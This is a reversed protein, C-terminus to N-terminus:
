KEKPKEQKMVESLCYRFLKTASVRNSKLWEFEKTTVRVSLVINLKDRARVKKIDFNELINKTNM